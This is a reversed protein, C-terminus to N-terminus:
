DRVICMDIMKTGRLLGIVMIFYGKPMLTRFMIKTLRVPEGWTDSSADFIRAWVENDEPTAVDNDSDHTYLLLYSDDGAILSCDSVLPMNEQLTLAQSWSSGNWVSYMLRNTVEVGQPTEDNDSKIWVTMASQNDTSAIVPSHDYYDDKTLSAFDDEDNQNYVKGTVSIEAKKFLDDIPDHESFIGDFDQWAALVDTDTATVAPTFDATGDEDLSEPSSWASGTKTSSFLQTRNLDTRERNDDIWVAVLENGRKVLQVDSYPYINNKITTDADAALRYLSPVVWETDQLIYNRPIVEYSADEGNLDPILALLGSRRPPKVPEGGNNWSTTLTEDFVTYKVFLTTKTIYANLEPVVQIYGTPIHIQSEVSGGVYGEVNFGKLGGYIEGSAYPKITIIGSYQSVAGPSNDIYITGGMGTGITIRGKAGLEIVPIVKGKEKFVSVDGWIGFEGAEMSWNGVAPDYILYVRGDHEAEVIYGVSVMKPKKKSKSFSGGMNYSMDLLLRGNSDKIKGYVVDNHSGIGFSESHDMLPMNNLGEIQGARNDSLVMDTEAQYEGDVYTLYVYPNTPPDIVAIKCDVWTSADGMPNVARVLLKSGPYLSSPVFDFWPDYTREIWGNYQIEFYGTSVDGWDVDINFRIPPPSPIGPINIFTTYNEMNSSIENMSSSTNFRAWVRSIGPNDAQVPLIAIEETSTHWFDMVESSHGMWEDNVLKINHFGTPLNRIVYYFASTHEDQKREGRHEVGDVEFNLVPYINVVEGSLTNVPQIWLDQKERQDTVKVARRITQVTDPVREDGYVFVLEYNGLYSPNKYDFPFIGVPVEGNVHIKTTIAGMDKIQKGNKYLYVNIKEDPLYVGEHKIYVTYLRRGPLGDLPDIYEDERILNQLKDPTVIIEIKDNELSRISMPQTLEYEVGKNDKAKLKVTYNGALTYIHDAQFGSATHGDGFDWECSVLKRDIMRFTEQLRKTDFSIKKDVLYRSSPDVSFSDSKSLDLKEGTTFTFAISDNWNGEDDIFVGAPIMLTYIEYPDLWLSLPKIEAMNGDYQTFVGVDKGASDIMSLLYSNPGKRVLHNFVLRIPENVPVNDAFNVPNMSQISLKDDGTTFSFTYDSTSPEHPAIKTKVFDSSMVVTYRTNPQLPKLPMLDMTTDFNKLEGVAFEVPKGIQDTIRVQGESRFIADKYNIQIHQLVSVDTENQKPFISIITPKETEPVVVFSLLQIKNQNLFRDEVAGGPILLWYIKGKQLSWGAYKFSVIVENDKLECVIPIKPYQENMLVIDNFSSGKILGSTDFTFSIETDAPVRAAGDAPVSSAISINRVVREEVTYVINLDEEMSNGSKDKVTEAPILIENKGTPMFGVRSSIILKKGEFRVMYEDSMLSGNLTINLFRPWYGYFNSGDSPMIDENFTVVTEKTNYAVDISNHAPAISVPIPPTIDRLALVTYEFTKIKEQSGKTITVTVTVPRHNEDYDPRTVLGTISQDENSRFTFADSVSSHYTIVSGYPSETSFTLNQTVAYPSPNLGLTDGIKIRNYDLTVAEEDTLPLAKVIVEFAKELSMNGREITAVLTVTVDGVSFSPPTLQGMTYPQVSIIGGPICRWHITTNEPGSVALSLPREVQNANANDGLIRETTLWAETVSLAELDTSTLTKVTVNFVKTLSYAGRKIVATLQVTKDGQSFSPCTVKGDQAIVELNNSEWLIQTSYLGDTHLALNSTVETLSPNIYRIEDETLWDNTEDVAEQDTPELAIVTVQFTKEIPEELGKTITATLTVLSNGMTFTPQNVTGDEAIISSNSSTWSISSEHLGTVPLSLDASIHHLDINSNLLVTLADYAEILLDSDTAEAPIVQISFERNISVEGMSITVSLLVEATPAPYPPRNVAGNIAIVDELSSTWYINSGRGGTDPMFLQSIVENWSTNGNLIMADTLWASDLAVMEADTIKIKVTFEKNRTVTGNSLHATLIVTQDGQAATPRSVIGTSTLFTENSSSWSITSGNVGTLPLDLEGRVFDLSKNGNLLRDATLENYDKNLKAADTVILFAEAEVYAGGQATARIRAIGATPSTLIVNVCGYTDTIANSSDLVGFDTNLTVPVGSVPNGLSDKIMATVTSAYASERDITETSLRVNSADMFPDTISYKLGYEIPFPDNKFSWQYISAHINYDSGHGTFGAYVDQIKDRDPTIFIEDLDLDASIVPSTPDDSDYSGIVEYVELKKATGGYQIWIKIHQNASFERTGDERSIAAPAVAIPNQYDGNTYVALHQETDTGQYEYAASESDRKTDFEVSLSPSIDPVGLSSLPGTGLAADSSAQLTFTFGEDYGQYMSSIDFIFSTSFSLDDALQIKNKTFVSGAASYNNLSFLHPNSMYFIGPAASGNFTLLNSINEIDAEDLQVALSGPVSVVSVDFVATDSSIGKSLTATLVVDISNAGSYAPRNVKGENNVLETNSSSWTIISGNPATTPFILDERVWDLFGNTKSFNDTLWTKDAALAEADADSDADSFLLADDASLSLSDEELSGSGSKPDEELSDSDPKPDEINTFNDYSKDLVSAGEDAYAHMNENFNLFRVPLSTFALTFVLFIRIIKMHKKNM